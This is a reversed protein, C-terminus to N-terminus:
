EPELKRTLLSKLRDEYSQLWNEPTGGNDMAIVTRIGGNAYEECIEVIERPQTLIALTTSTALAVATMMWVENDKLADKPMTRSKKKLPERLDYYRGIAMAFLFIDLLRKGHFISNPNQTAGKRDDYFDSVKENSNDYSIYDPWDVILKKKAIQEV